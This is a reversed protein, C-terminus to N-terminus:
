GTSARRALQDPEFPAVFQTVQTELEHILMAGIQHTDERIDQRLAARIGHAHALALAAPAAARKEETEIMRCLSAAMRTIIPYDYTTGLGRLDHACSFLAEGAEGQVGDSMVLKAAKELKAVEDELWLKFDDKMDDLAAEARAIAAENMPGVRGGVKVRLMNPPTIVEIPQERKM